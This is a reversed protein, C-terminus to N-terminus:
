KDYRLLLSIKEGNLTGEFLYSKKRNKEPIPFYLYGCVRESHVGAPIEKESLETEMVKRDEPATGSGSRGIGVGVGVGTSWGGGRRGGYYPDNYGGSEYGVGVTPYLAVERKDGTTRRLIGAVSAPDLPRVLGSGDAAKLVFYKPDIEVQNEKSPFLGVEVVIFGKTLDSSFSQLISNKNLSSVGLSFREKDASEAYDSPRQRPGIGRRSDAYAFLILCCVMTSIAALKKM